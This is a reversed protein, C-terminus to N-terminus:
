TLATLAAPIDKLPLIRDVDGAAIAARPMGFFESTSEDQVIVTGGSHRVVQAASAGDFGMGTLVVAVARSGFSQAISRFLQDASPRVHHVPPLHSLSLVGDPDVVLHADPPAVFAIGCSLRDQDEAEKVRFHSRRELIAALHSPRRPDLHQVILIAAGFDQPLHTLVYGLAKLGGASAALAVVKATAPFVPISPSLAPLTM